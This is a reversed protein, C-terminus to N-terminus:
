KQPNSAKKIDLKQMRFRMTNPNLNLIKAAGNNGSVQWKCHTLVSLMHQREIEAM